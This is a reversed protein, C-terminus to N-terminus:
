GRRALRIARRITKEAVGLAREAEYIATVLDDREGPAFQAALNGIRQQYGALAEAASGLEAATTDSM